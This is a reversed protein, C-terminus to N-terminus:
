SLRPKVKKSLGSFGERVVVWMVTSCIVDKIEEATFIHKGEPPEMGKRAPLLTAQWLDVDPLPFQIKLQAVVKPHHPAPALSAVKLRLPATERWQAEDNGAPGQLHSALIESARIVVTCVWPVESDEPDSEADSVDSNRGGSGIQSGGSRKRRAFLPTRPITLNGTSRGRGDDSAPIPPISAEPEARLNGMSTSKRSPSEGDRQKGNGRAWEIRIDVGCRDQGMLQIAQALWGDEGEGVKSWKKCVWTHAVARGQPPVTRSFLIPTTGLVPCLPFEPHYHTTARSPSVERSSPCRTSKGSFLKGLLKRPQPERAHEAFIAPLEAFSASTASAPSDEPDLFSSSSSAWVEVPAFIGINAVEVGNKQFKAVKEDTGADHVSNALLNYSHTHLNYLPVIRSNNRSSSSIESGSVESASSTSARRRRPTEICTAPPIYQIQLNLPHHASVTPPPKVIVFSQM